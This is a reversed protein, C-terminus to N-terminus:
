KPWKTKPPLEFSIECKVPIFVDSTKSLEAIEVAYKRTKFVQSPLAHLNKHLLIWGKAKIKKTM